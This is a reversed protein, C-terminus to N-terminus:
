DEVIETLKGEANRNLRMRRKAPRQDETPDDRGNVIAHIRFWLTLMNWYELAASPSLQSEQDPTLPHPFGLEAWINAYEARDPVEIESLQAFSPPLAFGKVHHREMRAIEDDLASM